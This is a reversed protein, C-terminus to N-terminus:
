QRSQQYTVTGGNPLTIGTDEQVNMFLYNAKVGTNNASPLVMGPWTPTNGQLHVGMAVAAKGDIKVTNNFSVIITANPGTDTPTAPPPPLIVPIGDTGHANGPTTQVVLIEKDDIKVKGGDAKLDLPGILNLDGSLKLDGM